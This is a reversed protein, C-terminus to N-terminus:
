KKLAKLLKNDDAKIAKFIEIKGAKNIVMYRPIWDIKVFDAFPGQKGKFMFYHEGQVGHREIGKKWAEESRDLSLFIYVVDKYRSQLDKVLPLGVLCDKCWSAWIDILITKGKHPQLIAELDRTGGDLTTFTDELTAKNFKKKNVFDCSYFCILLLLLSTKKKM